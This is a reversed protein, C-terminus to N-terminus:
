WVECLVEGGVRQRRADEDTMVGRSTSLISVGLGSYVYPISDHKVYVRCGPKSIRRLGDIASKHNNGYKLVIEITPRGSEDARRVEAVYGENKLIESVRLKLRSAPIRTLDHRANIANRIRALLDAIPDSVM